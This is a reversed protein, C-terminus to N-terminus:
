REELLWDWARLLWHPVAWRKWFVALLGVLVVSLLLAGLGLALPSFPLEQGFENLLFFLYLYLFSAACLVIALVSTTEFPPLGKRGRQRHRQQARSLSVGVIIGVLSPLTWAWRDSLWIAVGIWFAVLLRGLRTM